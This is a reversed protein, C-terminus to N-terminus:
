ALYKKADGSFLNKVLYSFAMVLHDVALQQINWVGIRSTAVYWVGLISTDVNWLGLRSTM